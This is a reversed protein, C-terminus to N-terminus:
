PLSKQHTKSHAFITVNRTNDKQACFHTINSVTHLLLIIFNITVPYYKPPMKYCIFQYIWHGNQLFHGFTVLFIEFWEMKTTKEKYWVPAKEPHKKYCEAEKHGKLGCFNCKKNM